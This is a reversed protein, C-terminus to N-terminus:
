LEHGPADCDLWEYICTKTLPVLLRLPNEIIEKVWKAVDPKLKVSEIGDAKQFWRHIVTRNSDKLDTNPGFFPWNDSFDFASGIAICRAIFKGVPKSLFIDVISEVIRKTEEQSAGSKDFDRLQSWWNRMALMLLVRPANAGECIIRLSTLFIHIRAERVDLLIKTAELDPDKLCDGLSAHRLYVFIGRQREQEQEDAEEEELESGSESTEYSEELAGPEPERSVPPPQEFLEDFRAEGTKVFKFLSGCSNDIIKTDFLGDGIEFQVIQNLDHISLPEKSHTTWCFLNKLQLRVKERDTGAEIRSFIRTYLKTLDAPLNELALFLQKPQKMFKLEQYLLDVWLFMGNAKELLTAIVKERLGKVKRITIYKDYNFETFRVIDKSNMESSIEITDLLSDDLIRVTSEM